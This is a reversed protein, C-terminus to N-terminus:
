IILVLPKQITTSGDEASEYAEEFIKGLVANVAGAELKSCDVVNVELDANKNKKM